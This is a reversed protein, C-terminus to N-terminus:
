ISVGFKYETFVTILLLSASLLVWEDVGWFKLTIGEFSKEPPHDLALNFIVTFYHIWSFNSERSNIRHRWHVASNAKTFLTDLVMSGGYENCVTKCISKKKWSVWIFVDVSAKSYWQTCQKTLSKTVFIVSIAGLIIETQAASTM